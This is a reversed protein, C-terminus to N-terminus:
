RAAAADPDGRRAAKREIEAAIAQPARDSTDVVCDAVARYQPGREGLMALVHALLAEDGTAAAGSLLPRQAARHRTRAVVVEPRATLWVVFGADRLVAANGPRLVIGGGTAIVQRNGSAVALLAQAERDRFGDEGLAAFLAPIGEGSTREVVADTDVFRWRKRAALARGVTSKGAGMFGILVINRPADHGRGRLPASM